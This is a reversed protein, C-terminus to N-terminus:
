KETTHYLVGNKYWQMTNNYILAPKDDDRHLIGNKYYAVYSGDNNSIAPTYELTSKIQYSHLKGDKYWEKNGNKYIIAPQGNDRHLKGNIYWKQCDDDIYAPKDGDRHILENQYWISILSDDDEDDVAWKDKIVSKKMIVAPKDNDRHKKGYKYWEIISGNDISFAPEDNLSHYMDNYYITTIGNNQYKGYKKGNIVAKLSM